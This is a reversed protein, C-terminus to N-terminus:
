DFYLVKEPNERVSNDVAENELLDDNIEFIFESPVTVDKQGFVSRVGAYTLIIKRKARTLAVYFM